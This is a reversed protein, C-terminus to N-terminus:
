HNISNEKEIIETTKFIDAVLGIAVFGVVVTLNIAAGATKFPLRLINGLITKKKIIIIKDM